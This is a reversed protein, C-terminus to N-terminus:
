GSPFRLRDKWRKVRLLVDGIRDRDDLEEMWTAPIREVNEFRPALRVTIQEEESEAAGWESLVAIFQAQLEGRALSGM